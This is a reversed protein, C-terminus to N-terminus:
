SPLTLLGKEITTIAQSDWRVRAPRALQVPDTSSGEKFNFHAGFLNEATRRGGSIILGSTNLRHRDSILLWWVDSRDSPVLLFDAERATSAECVSTKDAVIDQYEGSTQKLLVSKYQIIFKREGESSENARQYDQLISKGQDLPEAPFSRVPASALPQPPSENKVTGESKQELINCLRELRSELSAFSDPPPNDKPKVLHQDLIAALGDLPPRRRLVNVQWNVLGLAAVCFVAALAGIIGWISESSPNVTWSSNRDLLSKLKQMFFFLPDTTQVMITSNEQIKKNHRDYIRDMWASWSLAISLEWKKGDIKRLFEWKILLNLYDASSLNKNQIDASINKEFNKNNSFFNLCEMSKNVSQLIKDKLKDDVSAKMSFSNKTDEQFLSNESSNVSSMAQCLETFFDKLCTPLNGNKPSIVIELSGQKGYCTSNDAWAPATLGTTAAFLAAVVIPRFVRSLFSNM